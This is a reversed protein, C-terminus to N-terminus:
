VEVKIVMLKESLKEESVEKKVAVNDAKEVM